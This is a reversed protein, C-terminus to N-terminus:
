QAPPPQPTTDSPAPPPTVSSPTTQSSPASPATASDPPTQTIKPAPSDGTDIPRFAFHQGGVSAEFMLGSRDMTCVVVGHQYKAEASASDAAAVASLGASLATKGDKFEELARPSEFFVVESYSQGGLQAGVTVQTLKARGVLVGGQYVLGKGEAVGVGAAGKDVSPFVAYGYATGFLRQTRPSTAQFTQVANGVDADLRDADAALAAVVGVLTLTVILGAIRITKMHKEM